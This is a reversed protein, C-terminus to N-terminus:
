ISMAATQAPIPTTSLRSRWRRTLIELAPNWIHFVVAPWSYTRVSSASPLSFVNRRVGIEDVVHRAVPM